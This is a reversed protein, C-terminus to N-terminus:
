GLEQGVLPTWRVSGIRPWADADTSGPSPANSSGASPCCSSSAATAAASSRSTSRAAFRALGRRFKPGQYGGDAYLKLLFPYLGFLTAMLLVGGDRDQIDAAHVIAQMLLGQTDVLVHRKKGKIKKGRTSARRISRLAGKKRARSARATSSPPRRVPRAGPRSAAGCTSRMICASWRATTAGLPLLLREGHQAAAPGEPDRAVPLRHEPCVDARQGGRARGGDAQQRWAQGAPDGARGAGMGRRDPREPLAAQQPRLPCPERGDM